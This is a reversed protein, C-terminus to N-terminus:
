AAPFTIDHFHRRKQWAIRRGSETGRVFLRPNRGLLFSSGAYGSARGIRFSRLENGHRKPRPETSRSLKSFSDAGTICRAISKAICRLRRCMVDSCLYHLCELLYHPCKLPEGLRFGSSYHSPCGLGWRRMHLGQFRAHLRRRQIKHSWASGEATNVTASSWSKQGSGQSRVGTGRGSARKIGPIPNAVFSKVRGKPASTRGVHVAPPYRGVM